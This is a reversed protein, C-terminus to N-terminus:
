RLIKKESLAYLYVNAREDGIKISNILITQEIEMGDLGLGKMGFVSTPDVENPIIGDGPYPELTVREEALLGADRIGNSMQRGGDNLIVEINYRKRLDLMANYVDFEDGTVIYNVLDSEPISKVAYDYGAQNTVLVVKVENSPDLVAIENTQYKEVIKLRKFTADSRAIVVYIPSSSSSTVTSSSSSSSGLLGRKSKEQFKILDEYIPPDDKKFHDGFFQWNWIKDKNVMLNVASVMIAKYGLLIRHTSAFANDGPKRSGGSLLRIGGGQKGAIKFIYPGKADPLTNAVIFSTAQYPVKMRNIYDQSAGIVIEPLLKGLAELGFDRSPSIVQVWRRLFHSLQEETIKKNEALSELKARYTSEFKSEEEM